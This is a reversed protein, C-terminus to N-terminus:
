YTNKKIFVEGQLKGILKGLEERSQNLNQVPTWIISNGDYSEIKRVKFKKLIQEVFNSEKPDFYRTLVSVDDGKKIWGDKILYGIESNTSDLLITIVEVEDIEQKLEFGRELSTKKPGVRLPRRKKEPEEKGLSDKLYERLNEFANRIAEIIMLNRDQKSVIAGVKRPAGFGYIVIGRGSELDFVEITLTCLTSTRESIRRIAEDILDPRIRVHREVQRRTIDRFLEVLINSREGIRVDVSLLRIEYRKGPLRRLAETDSFFKLGLERILKQTEGFVLPGLRIDTPASIVINNERMGLYYGLPIMKNEFFDKILDSDNINETMEKPNFEKLKEKKKKEENKQTEVIANSVMELLNDSRLSKESIEVKKFIRSFDQARSSGITGPFFLSLTLLMSTAGKKIKKFIEVLRGSNILNVEGKKFVDELSKETM